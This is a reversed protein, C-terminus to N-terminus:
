LNSPLHERPPGKQRGQPSAAAEAENGDQGGQPRWSEEKSKEHDFGRPQKLERKLVDVSKTATKRKDRQMSLRRLVNSRLKARKALPFLMCGGLTIARAHTIASSLRAIEHSECRLLLASTRM